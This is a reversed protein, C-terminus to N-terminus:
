EKSLSMQLMSMVSISSLDALVAEMNQLTNVRLLNARRFIVITVALLPVIELSDYALILDWLYLLQDPPLHGSFARMMWKFVVRIPPINNKKFHHWLVTDFCQLLREYLLCLCVIGQPHGCVKHLRFWYRLYFARFMFYLEVSDDFLYCFPAAYMTFGHFPIVGSPPFTLTSEPVSSKGKLVVQMYGPKYPLLKLVEPDRSFCLLVQHLVDEFVFYQDDNSATLHIDKIILKDIMLDYQLVHSKLKEYQLRHTDNTDSGLVLKWMKTRLSPPCGKKLYEQAIPAHNTEFVKEGLEIREAEFAAYGCSANRSVDIGLVAEGHSLESYLIRLESLEKVKIPIHSFDWAPEDQKPKYNPGKLNLLVELFDKPSYVPRYKSIDVDYNSLEGWKELLEERDSNTRLRALHIGLETCMSNLSKHIRKEWQIQAKKFFSDFMPPAPEKSQSRVWYYVSNRLRAELGSEKLVKTLSDGFEDNKVSTSSVVKQVDSYLSPYSPMQKIDECLKVATYYVGKDKIEEM